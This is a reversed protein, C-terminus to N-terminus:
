FYQKTRHKRLSKNVQGRVYDLFVLILLYAFYHRLASWREWPIIYSRRWLGGRTKIGFLSIGLLFVSIIACGRILQHAFQLSVRILLCSCSCKPGFGAISANTKPSRHEWVSHRNIFIFRCELDSVVYGVILAGVSLCPSRFKKKTGLGKKPCEEFLLFARM